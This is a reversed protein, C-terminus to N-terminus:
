TPTAFHQCYDLKMKFGPPGGIKIYVPVNNELWRFGALGGVGTPIDSIPNGNNYAYQTIDDYFFNIKGTTSTVPVWTIIFRHYGSTLVTESFTGNAAKTQYTGGGGVQTGNSSWEHGAFTMTTQGFGFNTCYNEEDDLETMGKNQGTVDPNNSIQQDFWLPAYWQNNATCPLPQSAYVVWAGHYWCGKTPISVNQTSQPTSCITVNGEGPFNPGDLTLVGKNSSAFSGTAAETTNVSINAKTSNIGQQWYFNYGSTHTGDPDVTCAVDFDDGWDYATLGAAAVVAPATPYMNDCVPQGWAREFKVMAAMAAAGTLLGRRKLDIVERRASLNLAKPSRLLM